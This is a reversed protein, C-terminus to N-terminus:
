REIVLNTLPKSCCPLFLGQDIERQRIGGGHKMEVKGSILKSKCTGCLGKRCSSALRMGAAISADLVFQDPACSIHNGSKTFEVDFTEGTSFTSSTVTPVALENATLEDFNFSEEHYQAMDFGATKLMTRVAAMYAAPGCTFVKRQLFDPVAQTLNDINLYGCFYNKAQQWDADAKECIFATRFHPQQAMLALEQKFIIDAPTRASHVFAIEANEALDYFSRSMSMLPTIGSGGSLFLYKSAPHQTCTFEGASGLVSIQSGVQFYDHLWNSVIGNPQRKVTISLTHPRTPTSSITYSRNISEGNIELELTIFQGPLFQFICPKLPKFYFSKVDHTENKIACCELINNQDANWIPLNVQWYEPTNRSSIIRLQNNETM